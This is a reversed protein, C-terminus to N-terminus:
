INVYNGITWAFAYACRMRAKDRVLECSDAAINEVDNRIRACLEYDFGIGTLVEGARQICAESLSDWYDAPLQEAQYRLSGDDDCPLEHLHIGDIAEVLARSYPTRIGDLLDSAAQEWQMLDTM